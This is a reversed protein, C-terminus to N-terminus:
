YQAMKVVVKYEDFVLELSISDSYKSMEILMMIANDKSNHWSTVTRETTDVSMRRHPHKKLKEYIEVITM